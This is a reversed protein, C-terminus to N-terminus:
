AKEGTPLEADLRRRALLDRAAKAVHRPSLGYKELLEDNPASEPYVDQLGVRAMWVPCNEALVEAVAGGLGGLVSHDEATVVAKTRRAAQVIAEVDLPKLTPVHLLYPFIGEAELLSCAEIARTTQVGTSIV